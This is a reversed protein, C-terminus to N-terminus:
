ALLFSPNKILNFVIIHIPLMQKEKVALTERDRQFTSTILSVKLPLPEKISHKHFTSGGTKKLEALTGGRQSGETMKVAEVVQPISNQLIPEAAESENHSKQFYRAPITIFCIAIPALMLATQVLFGYKFITFQELGLTVGYGFIIGLPVTLYYICIWM